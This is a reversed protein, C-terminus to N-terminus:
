LIDLVEVEILANRFLPSESSVWDSVYIKLGCDIATVSLEPTKLDGKDSRAPADDPQIAPVGNPREQRDRVVCGDTGCCARHQAGSSHHCEMGGLNTSPIRVSVQFCGFLMLLKYRDLIRPSVWTNGRIRLSFLSHLHPFCLVSGVDACGRRRRRSALFGDDFLHEPLRGGTASDSIVRHWLRLSHSITRSRALFSKCETEPCIRNARKSAIEVFDARSLQRDAM